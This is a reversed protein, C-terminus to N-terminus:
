VGPAQPEVWTGHTADTWKGNGDYDYFRGGTSGLSPYPQQGFRVKDQGLFSPGTYAKAAASIQAAKAAPGLGNLIRALDMATAFVAPAFNSHALTPDGYRSVANVYAAVQGSPDPAQTNKYPFYYTWKPLEGGAAAKVSPDSCTGLTVTPQDAGRGTIGKAVARCTTSTAAALLLADASSAGSAAITATFDTTGIGFQSTTIKSVGLHQLTGKWLGIILTTVSDKEGIISVSKPKVYDHLYTLMSGAAVIGGGFAFVNDATADAPGSAIGVFMPKKGQLTNLIETDGLSIGGAVISQISPDNLM